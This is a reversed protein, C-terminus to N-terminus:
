RRRSAIRGREPSGPGRALCPEDPKGPRTGDLGFGTRNGTQFPPLLSGGPREPERSGFSKPNGPGPAFCAEGRARELDSRFIRGRVIRRFWTRRTTECVSGPRLGIAIQKRSPDFCAEKRAAVPGFGLREADLDFCAGERGGKPDSRLLSREEGRGSRFGAARCRPRLLSRGKRRVTVSAFESGRRSRASARDQADSRLLSRGEAGESKRLRLQSSGQPRGRDFSAEAPVKDFSGPPSEGQEDPM